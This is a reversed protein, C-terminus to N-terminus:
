CARPTTVLGSHSRPYINKCRLMSVVLVYSQKVGTAHFRTFLRLLINKCKSTNHSVVFDLDDSTKHHWSVDPSGYCRWSSNASSLRRGPADAYPQIQGDRTRTVELPFQTCGTPPSVSSNSYTLHYDRTVGANVITTGNAMQCELM